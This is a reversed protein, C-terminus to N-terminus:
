KVEFKERWDIASMILEFSKNNDTISLLAEDYKLDKLFSIMSKAVMDSKTIKIKEVSDNEDLTIICHNCPLLSNNGSAFTQIIVIEGRDNIRLELNIIGSTLKTEM